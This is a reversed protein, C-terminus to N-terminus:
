GTQQAHAFFKDLALVMEDVLVPSLRHSALAEVWDPSRGLGDVSLGTLYTALDRHAQLYEDSALFANAVDTESMGDQLANMWFTRGSADAGLHLSAGSFQDVQRGRHAPSTWVGQVGQLPTGGAQLIAAWDKLAQAEAHRGLVDRYLEQVCAQEPPVQEPPAQPGGLQLPSTVQATGTAVAPTTYGLKHTVKVTITYTGPAAYTHGGGDYIDYYYPPDEAVVKGVTTTNDGWDITATYSDASGFPDVNDINTIVATVPQGTVAQVNPTIHTSMLAPIVTLTGDVYTIKYNTTTLGYPTLSYKGPPSGLTANDTFAPPGGLTAETDGNVLGTYTAIVTATSDPRGYWRTADATVTLPAPDVTLAVQKSFKEGTSGAPTFIVTLVQNPGANLVTGAAPTYTFTGPVDATANLQTPGLPTGYTINAPNDWTITPAASDVTISVTKTAPNYNASDTPTFAVSLVQNPGPNLVTGAPPTYVFTGPVDATANLQMPGLPTGYTIDAPNNWTIVPTAKDVAINVNKTAKTYNTTDTPTFTVTLVQDPGANLVTGAPPTYTFTGPVDATANLQAAGLPTGYTIAAPNNWTIVPTAKDVTISVQKTVSTYHTSDTPTFVVTLVQNPGANLVTGAPPTYVFTGPVDATANLQTPGLPTGYTIDAPNDWTITPTANNVTLTTTATSPGYGSTQAGSATGNYVAHITHSGAALTSTTFAAQGNADLPVPDGLPTTGDLFTVTGAPVPTPTPLDLGVTATFTVSQGLTSSAPGTVATTTVFRNLLVSVNNDSANAIALDVNGDNNFDGAAVSFPSHGTPFNQANAFTGDGKGLLISVTGTDDFASAQEVIALDPIGDGNFDGVVVNLPEVSGLTYEQAAQFTGDGNGQLISVSGTNLTPNFQVVALDPVGDGNFDGVAVAVPSNSVAYKQGAYFTGDGKGLFVSVSSDSGDAVVLDLIGDGKFDGVAVSVPVLGTAYNQAPQFTGDGNGLFVSLTNSQANAVALDLHGDRNFDAIVLSQPLAGTPYTQAAQFTGDGKGLLITVSGPSLDINGSVVALDPIGDGNFDGVAVSLPHGGVAYSQGAQFTGDGKGLLVSVTNDINNVVVLDPIGDRNFDGVAVSIPNNGTTYNQAAQFAGAPAPSLVTIRVTKTAPKYNTSDAPTFTVSLVQNLGGGLISGAPPTYHFTGPVNATANLQTPGLPTGYTINAPNNWTIIPTAKDVTITVTKTVAPANPSSPTFTVSLVQNPGANLITGAAPTYTFTGPVDATANLQTPGLPTGYTINAPNNWTVTVTGNLLVSANNGGFNATVLDPQGGSRFNGVALSVPNVGTAFDQRPQFNANGSGLLVSVSNDDRNTVALDLNGDGDFDAVAVSTPHIGADYNVPSQFTGDGNGLLVSVNNSGFNATVLDLKGDGNLDAAALSVPEVGAQYSQAPQFTGDGNGLLVSVSTTGQDAVALDLNGDGNFDGVAVSAPSTGTAYNQAKQFTGDGNGLLVSVTNSGGNTVALDLKGDHRFDGVAVSDPQQGTKYNVANQFTGDGNGLLV